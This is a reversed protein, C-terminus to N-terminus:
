YVFLIIKKNIEDPIAFCMEKAFCEKLEKFAKEHEDLWKFDVNKHTLTFLPEVMTSFQHVFRSDYNCLGLFSLLQKKSTPTPWNRITELKSPAMKVSGSGICHGLIEIESM